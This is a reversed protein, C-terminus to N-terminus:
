PGFKLDKSMVKARHFLLIQVYNSALEMFLRFFIFQIMISGSKRFQQGTEMFSKRGLCNCASIMFNNWVNCWFSLWHKGPGVYLVLPDTNITNIHSREVDDLDADLFDKNM